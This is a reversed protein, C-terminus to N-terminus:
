ELVRAGAAELATWEEDSVQRTRGNARAVRARTSEIVLLTVHGPDTTDLEELISEM